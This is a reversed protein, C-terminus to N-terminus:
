LFHDRQPLSSRKPAPLTCRGSLVPVLGSHGQTENEMNTRWNTTTKFGYQYATPPLEKPRSSVPALGDKVGIGTDRGCCRERASLIKEEARGMGRIRAFLGRPVGRPTRRTDKHVLHEMSTMRNGIQSAHFHLMFFRTGSDM